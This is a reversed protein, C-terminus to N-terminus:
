ITMTYVNANSQVSAKLPPPLSLLIAVSSLAVDTHPPRRAGNM